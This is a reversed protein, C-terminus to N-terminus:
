LVCVVASAVAAVRAGAGPADAGGNSPVVAFGPPIM